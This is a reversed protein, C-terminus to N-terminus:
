GNSNLGCWTADEGVQKGPGHDRVDQEDDARRSQDPEEGLYRNVKGERRDGNGALGETYEERTGREAPAAGAERHREVQERTERAHRPERIM